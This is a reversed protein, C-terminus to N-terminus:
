LRIAAVKAAMPEIVPDMMPSHFAHSTVLRRAAVGAATLEAELRAILDTPGSAVCLGPANEAAIVVGAPLRPTVEEAPLRVSLMSGAPMEQMRRGREHVLGLADGLPMVEALAACVWEGVSHGILATPKVGWSMWMQALAYELTFIAPQTVSTPVLAQPDESFLVQRPDGGGPPATHAELIACCEDYAARFAPEAHYLGWGMRAYQAGQGPCLFGVSPLEAALERGGAKNPEPTMLLRAAEAASSAVVYRRHSFGRRGVQLTHAVDALLTSDGAPSAELFRALNASAEALAPASRASVMVLEATRLAPTSRVQPPAEELVAHANTGGFGFASVGARRPGASEPWPTLQTQVRFPTRAFDIKSTPQTFNISPPLTRRSLALATKILSAAGAAIVLHGINTKLSGIACFGREQTHRHFARTLGEIEIPDGLPTATGHAEIYSLTRPDIGAADHAAAIVQAQGEPSPATFSARESGDNNVGVSLMVAYITDGDAIADSLRRLAVIGIGDSFVTGAAEVDFTRTHGDVSSMTGEQYFYGSNPPCTISVGGALAIDCGGNRLSDMAMAAAVLSTSCATHVSIAPGTLGLRHAVRSTVYDKENGLMVALEGLRNVVDPRPLLHRQFYTANYMGGWIGIPGPTTEPVYGAHELAHWSMELFHRQQPDMLQAELPSIGFFGADFLEVGDIVGRAAVYSPDARHAAPISPDLEDPRFWRISEKGACLNAWFAEVDGAGPFRGAMGIIAIPERGDGSARSAARAEGAARRRTRPGRAPLADGDIARALAAPTPAAFFTAPSLEPFGAERLRAILRLSLLSNGGLEFFGDLAGVREVGLLESFARCIAAERDGSPARYPQALEPRANTPAPLKARDLKGNRTVPLASLTVFVAPVMFDPLTRSLQTRLTPPSTADGGSAGPEPVVYAVLRKGTPGDSRVMVACASVGPLAGLRAEIEGLEIRFGRLKVQGDARGLFDITGDPRWRVRDGTRYLRPSGGGASGGLHDPVFREADLEPRALYGRAVGLGGVYLEGVIGVPVPQGARNLVYVQTDAIPSGIPIPTDAPIDRPISYTTTFTTCETPGYGNVLQTAPLADLARRIHSPSLAEGGTYLQGLGSLLRPDEDVVSNFLAATLWATTVGHTTIVRALGKGTPVPDRYIVCAGGHLLPGWLELTSADFGLPAAHLFRTEADLRVYSVRGVLRLISRHEIQVGKPLGTSGSTYMVYARTRPTAREVHPVAPSTPGTTGDDVFVTHATLTSLTSARARRIVLVRASADTVAFALRDSPHDPDLPLYAGGAKLIGLAAVIAEPSREICLAVPQDIDVGTAILREALADSWRDLEGYTLQGGDWLLAIREPHAAAQERFLGHVTAETRYETRTRNWEEVVRAREAAPLPSIAELRAGPAVLAMVVTRLFEGLRTATARDIRAGTFRAVAAAGHAHEGAAGAAGNKVRTHWILAPGDEEVPVGEGDDWATQATQPAPGGEAPAQDAAAVTGLWSLLDGSAPVDIKKAIWPTGADGRAPRGIRVETTGFLRALVLAWAARWIADVGLGLRVALAALAAAGAADLEVTLTDEGASVVAPATIIDFLDAEASDATQSM